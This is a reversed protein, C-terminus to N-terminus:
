KESGSCSYYTPNELITAAEQFNQNSVVFTSGIFDFVNSLERIRRPLLLNLSLLIWGIKDGVGLEYQKRELLLQKTWGHLRARFTLTEDSYRAFLDQPYSSKFSGFDEIEITALDPPILSEIRGNQM